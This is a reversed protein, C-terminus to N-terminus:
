LEIFIITEVIFFIEFCHLLVLDSDIPGTVAILFPCQNPVPFYLTITSENM